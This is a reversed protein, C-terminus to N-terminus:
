AGASKRAATRKVARKRPKPGAINQESRDAAHMSKKTKGGVKAKPM